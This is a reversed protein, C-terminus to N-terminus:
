VNITRGVMIDIYNKKYSNKFINEADEGSCHAPGIRQVGLERLRNNIDILKRVPTDILHLGGMVLYIDKQIHKRVHEVITVIGPHACGTIVTLGSRTELVLSQETISGRGYRGDIQGTTYIKDRLKRFSTIEVLNCQYSRAKNKFDHSSGACVYLDIGPKRELVDWLGGAHDFHDHSIIISEIHDIEVNMQKMNNFLCGGAEGTDFLVTGGILYSVGWGALFTRDLKKNDFLIKIEM